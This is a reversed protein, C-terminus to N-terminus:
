LVNILALLSLIVTAMTASASGSGSGGLYTAPDYEAKVTFKGFMLTLTTKSGSTKLTPYQVNKVKPMLQPAGGDLFMVSSIVIDGYQKAKVPCTSGDADQPTAPVPKAGPTKVEFGLELYKGILYENGKKCEKCMGGSAGQACCWPRNEVIFSVLVQDKSVAYCEEIQGTGKIVNTDNKVIMIKFTMKGGGPLTGSGTTCQAKGGNSYDIDCETESESCFDDVKVSEDCSATIKDGTADLECITILKFDVKKMDPNNKNMCNIAPQKGPVTCSFDGFTMTKSDCEASAVAKLALSVLLLHMLAM